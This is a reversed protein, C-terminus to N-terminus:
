PLSSPVFATAGGGALVRRYLEEYRPTIKQWTLESARARAAAALRKRLAPEYALRVLAAALAAPDDPSVVLATEDAVALELVGGVGAAVAPVGATMAELLAIGFAEVRSPLVFIQVGALFSAVGTRDLAGVLSVRDGLDLEAVLDELHGRLPGDGVIV